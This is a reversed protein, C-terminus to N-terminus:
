VKHCGKGVTITNTKDNYYWHHGNKCMSDRMTCNCVVTSNERCTPCFQMESLVKKVELEETTDEIPRAVNDYIKAYIRAFKVREENYFTYSDVWAIRDYEYQVHSFIVEATLDSYPLTLYMSQLGFSFDGTPNDVIQLVEDGIKLVCKTITENPYMNLQFRNGYADFMKSLKVIFSKDGKKELKIPNKSVICNYKKGFDTAMSIMHYTNTMGVQPVSKYPKPYVYQECMKCYEIYKNFMKYM